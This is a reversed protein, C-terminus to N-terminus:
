SNTVLLDMGRTTPEGNKVLPCDSSLIPKPSPLSYLAGLSTAPPVMEVSMIFLLEKTPLMFLPIFTINCSAILYISGERIVLRFCVEM